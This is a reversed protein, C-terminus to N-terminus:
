KNLHAVQVAQNFMSALSNSIDAPSNATYFFDKSACNTLATPLNPIATNTKADEGWPDSKYTLPTYPIYLISITAGADKLSKCLSSDIAQPSSGDFGSDNYGSYQTHWGTYNYKGNSYTAYHQGNGMGDTILFVYPRPKNSSSGDGFSSIAAKMAPMVLEFHTGGSGTGTSPDNGTALQTVGLDLLNTFAMPPSSGCDAKSNLTTFDQSLAVLPSMQVVFPYLGVRYQNPVLPQSARTLLQCVATNVAGSRLQINNNVALSWGTYSQVKKENQFHCAFQCGEPVVDSNDHNIKMLQTQGAATSPLGMSGSVDILLYFDLYAPIDASAITNGGVGTSSRNFIQGFNNRTSTQYSVTASFTQLTRVLNITPTPTTAFPIKGANVSFARAARDKGAAIANATLNSDSPNAAVYAKATAVAALAAADAANDLKSKASLAMGYDVGLGILGLLPVLSFAFLVSVNGDRSRTASRSRSWGKALKDFIMHM